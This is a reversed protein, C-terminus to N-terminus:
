QVEGSVCVDAADEVLGLGCVWPQQLGAGPEDCLGVLQDLPSALATEKRQVLLPGLRLRPDRLPRALRLADLRDITHQPLEEDLGEHGM